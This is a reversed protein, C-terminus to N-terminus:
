LNGKHWSREKPVLDGEHSGFKGLCLDGKHCFCISHYESVPGRTCHCKELATLKGAAEEGGLLVLGALVLVAWGPM